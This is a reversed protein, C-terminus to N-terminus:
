WDSYDTIDLEKGYCRVKVVFGISTPTFIYSVAGGIAGSYPVTGGLTLREFEEPSMQARQAELKENLCQDIFASAREIEGDTLKFTTM